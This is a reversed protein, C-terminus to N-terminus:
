EFQAGFDIRLDDLLAEVTKEFEPLREELLEGRGQKALRELEAAIEAVRGAGLSVSSSRFSHIAKEAQALDGNRVGQRFNEIRRPAHTLFIQVLEALLDEGGLERIQGVIKADLDSRM